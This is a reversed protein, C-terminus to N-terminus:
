QQRTWPVSTFNWFWFSHIWVRLDHKFRFTIRKPTTISINCRIRLSVSEMNISTFFFIGKKLNKQINLLGEVEVLKRSQTSSIKELILERIFVKRKRWILNSHKTLSSNFATCSSVIDTKFYFKSTVQVSYLSSSRLTKITCM